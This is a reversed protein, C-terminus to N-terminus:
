RRLRKAYGHLAVALDDLLEAMDELAPATATAPPPSDAQEQREVWALPILWRRGLKTCPIEGRNISALVTKKHVAWRVALEDVSILPPDNAVEIAHDTV